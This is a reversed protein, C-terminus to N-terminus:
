FVNEERRTYEPFVSPSQIYETYETIGTLQRELQLIRRHNPNFVLNIKSNRFNLFRIEYPQWLMIKIDEPSRFYLSM